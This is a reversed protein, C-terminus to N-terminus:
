LEWESKMLGALQARHQSTSPVKSPLPIALLEPCRDVPSIFVMALDIPNGNEDFDDMQESVFSSVEAYADEGLYRQADVEFCQIHDLLDDRKKGLTSREELTPHRGM